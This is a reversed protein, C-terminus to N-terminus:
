YNLRELSLKLGLIRMTEFVPPSVKQGTMKLRLWNACDKFSLNNDTCFERFQDVTLNAQKIKIFNTIIQQHEFHIQVSMINELFTRGMELLDILTNCRIKIFDLGKEFRQWAQLDYNWNYFKDAYNKAYELLVENNLFRMYKGSLDLLKDYDFKAASKGFGKENFIEKTQDLPIFEADKHGWGLRMLYNFLAQPLIGQQAFDLVSVSGNRKSLKKGTSDLILPIHSYRPVNWGMANIIQIQKFTNTLHDCGRVIWNVNMEHDDAVVALLYTPSGDSRLLAFDEITNYAVEVAGQVQDEMIITGTNPVKFRITFPLDLQSTNNRYASRFAQGQVRMQELEQQTHYCRYAFGKDLLEKAIQQHKHVNHSQYVIQGSHKIGLFDLSSFIVDIAEQTSRQTDTDEIRLLMQGDYHQALLFNFIATRANGIHMYGTPSPAFRLIPKSHTHANFNM